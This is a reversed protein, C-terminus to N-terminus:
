QRRRPYARATQERLRPHRNRRSTSILASNRRRSSPEGILAHGSIGTPFGLYNEIRSSGGAQGGFALRDFVIVSLGESAAYVATALGGPGAGVIAVDFARNPADIRVLALCRAARGRVSEEVGIRPAFPSRCIPRDPRM